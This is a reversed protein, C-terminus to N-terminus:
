RQYIDRKEFVLWGVIVLILCVGALLSVNSLSLGENLIRPSALYKFPSFYNPIKLFTVTGAITFVMYALFAYLGAIAGAAGRRGTASGIAFGVLSLVMSVLWMMFTAELVRVIDVHEHIILAGLWVGIFMVFSVVGLLAGGAALKQFYVKARSVPQAMLTQLTGENEDGAILGTFLIIGYIFTVFIMQMFVQLQLFGNLSQYDAAQGLVSKLSDPVNQLTQGFSDRFTPFLWVVLITFTFMTVSWWFLGWRKEYLTKLFINSLM